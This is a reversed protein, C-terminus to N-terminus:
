GFSVEAFRRRRLFSSIEDLLYALLQELRCARHQFRQDVLDNARLYQAHVLVDTGHGAFFHDDKRQGSRGKKSLLCSLDSASLPAHSEFDRGLMEALAAPSHFNYIRRSANPPHRVDRFWIVEGNTSYLFPVRYGDFNLPNATAGRSYREAQTLVNQPGVTLKKTEVIALVKGDVGLAYDAPGSTTEYEEIRHPQTIPEPGDVRRWGLADLCPDIRKKRNLWEPEELHTPTM